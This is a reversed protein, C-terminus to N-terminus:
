FILIFTLKYISALLYLSSTIITIYPSIKKKFEKFSMGISYITIVKNWTDGWSKLEDPEYQFQPLPLIKYETYWGNTEPEGIGIVKVNRPVDRIGREGFNTFLNVFVMWSLPILFLFLSYLFYEIKNYFILEVFFIFSIFIRPLFDFLIVLLISRLEINKEVFEAVKCFALGSGPINPALLDRISELPQIVIFNFFTKVQHIIKSNEFVKIKNQKIIIYISISIMIIHLLIFVMNVYIFTPTINSKLQNLEFTSRERLFRFCIFLIVWLLGVSYLYVNKLNHNFKM